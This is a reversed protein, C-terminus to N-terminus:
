DFLHCAVCLRQEVPGGTPAALHSPLASRADHCTMCTIRGGPLVVNVKREEPKPRLGAPYPAYAIEVRHGGHEFSGGLAGDHCGTCVSSATTREAGLELACVAPGSAQGPPPAAPEAAAALVLPACLAAM